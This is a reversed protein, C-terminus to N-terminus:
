VHRREVVVALLSCDNVALRERRRVGISQSELIVLPQVASLRARTRLVEEKSVRGELGEVLAFVVTPPVGKLLVDRLLRGTLIRCLVLRVNIARVCRTSTFASVTALAGDKRVNIVPDYHAQRDATFERLVHERFIANVSTRERRHADVVYARVTIIRNPM